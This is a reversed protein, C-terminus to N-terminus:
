GRAAVHSVIERPCYYAGGEGGGVIHCVTFVHLSGQQINVSCDRPSVARHPSLSSPRWMIIDNARCVETSQLLDGKMVSTSPQM